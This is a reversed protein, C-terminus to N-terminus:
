LLILWRNCNVTHYVSSQSEFTEYTGLIVIMYFAVPVYCKCLHNDSILPVHLHWRLCLQYCLKKFPIFNCVAVDSVVAASNPQLVATTCLNLSHHMSSCSWIFFTFDRHKVLWARCWESTHPLPHVSGCRRPRTQFSHDAERGLWKVGPSLAGLERQIRTQSPGLSPSCSTSFVFNKVRSPSGWGIAIGVASDWSECLWM